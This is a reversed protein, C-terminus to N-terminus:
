KPASLADLAAHHPRLSNVIDVTAQVAAPIHQELADADIDVGQEQAVQLSQTAITIASSLKQSGTKGKMQQAAAAAAVIHPVAAPHLGPVIVPLLQGLLPALFSLATLFGSM